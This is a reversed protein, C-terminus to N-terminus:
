VKLKAARSRADSINVNIIEYGAKRAGDIMEKMENERGWWSECGWVVDGNDLVLKPNAFGMNFGGIEEPPIEDGQYTGYGLVYVANDEACLMVGVREGVVHKGM